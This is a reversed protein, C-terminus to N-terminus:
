KFAEPNDHWTCHQLVRGIRRFKRNCCMVYGNQNHTDMFHSQIDAFSDFIHDDSCIDCKMQVYQLLRKNNEDLVNVTTVSIKKSFKSTSSKLHKATRKKKKRIMNPRTSTSNAKETTKDNSYSTDSSGDEDEMDEFNYDKDDDESDDDTGM